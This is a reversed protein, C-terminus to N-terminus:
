PVNGNSAATLQDITHRFPLNVLDVQVTQDSLSHVNFEYVPNMGEESPLLDHDSNSHSLNLFRDTLVLLKSFEDLIVGNKKDMVGTVRVPIRASSIRVLDGSQPKKSSFRVNGASQEEEVKDVEVWGIREEFRGMEEHTSPHFFPEGPRIIELVIGKVLGNKRGLNIKGREGDTQILSGEVKPFYTSFIYTLDEISLPIPEAVSVTALAVTGLFTFAGIILIVNVKFYNFM